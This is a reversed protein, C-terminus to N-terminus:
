SRGRDTAPGLEGLPGESRNRDGAMGSGQADERIKGSFLQLNDLSYLDQWQSVAYLDCAGQWMGGTNVVPM